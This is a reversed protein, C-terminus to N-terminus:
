LQSHEHRPWGTIRTIRCGHGTLQHSLPQRHLRQRRRTTAPSTPTSTPPPPPTVPPVGGPGPPGSVPTTAGALGGGGPQACFPGTQLIGLPQSSRINVPISTGYTTGANPDNINKVTLKFGGSNSRRAQTGDVFIPISQGDNIVLWRETQFMWVQAPSIPNGSDPTINAVNADLYNPVIQYIQGSISVVLNDQANIPNFVAAGQFKGTKFIATDNTAPINLAIKRFTPRHMPFDGRVTGNTLFGLQTKPLMAPAIGAHMGQPFAFLSDEKEEPQFEPKLPM